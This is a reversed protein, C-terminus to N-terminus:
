LKKNNIVKVLNDIYKKNRKSKKLHLIFDSIIAIPCCYTKYIGKCEGCDIKDDSCYKNMKSYIEDYYEIAKDLEDIFM